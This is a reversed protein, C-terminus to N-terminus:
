AENIIMKRKGGDMLVMSPSWPMETVIWLSVTGGEIQMGILVIFMLGTQRFGCGKVYGPVLHFRDQWKFTWNRGKKLPLSIVSFCKQKGIMFSFLFLVCIIYYSLYVTAKFHVVSFFSIIKNHWLLSKRSMILGMIFTRLTLCDGCCLIFHVYHRSGQIFM